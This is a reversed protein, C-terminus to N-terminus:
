LAFLLFRHFTSFQLHSPFLSFGNAGTCQWRMSRTSLTVTVTVQNARQLLPRRSEPAFPEAVDTPLWLGFLHEAAQARMAMGKSFNDGPEM